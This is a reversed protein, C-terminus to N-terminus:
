KLAKTSRKVLSVPASSIEGNTFEFRTRFGVASAVSCEGNELVSKRKLDCPPTIFDRSIIDVQQPSVDLDSVFQLCQDPAVPDDASLDVIPGSCSVKIAKESPLDAGELCYMSIINEDDCVGRVRLMGLELSSAVTTIVVKFLLEKSSNLIDICNKGTLYTVDSDFLTLVVDGTGDNVELKVKYKDRLGVAEAIDPNILLRSAYMSNQVVPKGKFM